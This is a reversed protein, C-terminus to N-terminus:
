RNSTSPQLIRVEASTGAWVLSILSGIYFATALLVLSRIGFAMSSYEAWGGVVAGLMNVGIGASAVASSAFSRAFVLAAFYVPLLVGISFIVLPGIGRGIVAEPNLSYSLLLSGFLGAYAIAYSFRAGILVTFNAAVILTLVVMITVASVIWTTGFLLALRNIAYVEMLLFAAGLFFLHGDFATLGRMPLGHRRIVVVSGFALLIVVFLYAQPIGRKPLYLFPWDDTPVSHAAAELASPNSRDSVRCDYSVWSGDPVERTQVDSACVAELMRVFRERFWERFTAATLVIRGGPRLLSRAEEFSELTIVYNDLRVSSM